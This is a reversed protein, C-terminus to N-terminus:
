QITDFEGVTFKLLKIFKKWNSPYANQGDKTIAKKGEYKIKVKWSSGDLCVMDEPPLSIDDWEEIKLASLKKEFEELSVTSVANKAYNTGELNILFNSKNYLLKGGEVMIEIDISDTMRATDHNYTLKEIM